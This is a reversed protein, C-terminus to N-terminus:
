AGAKSSSEQVSNIRQALWRLEYPTLERGVIARTGDSSELTLEWVRSDVDALARDHEMAFVGPREREIAFVRARLRGRGAARETGLAHAAELEFGDSSIALRTRRAAARPVAFAMVATVVIFAGVLLAASRTFFFAIAAVLLVLAPIGLAFSRHLPRRWSLALRGDALVQERISGQLSDSTPQLELEVIAAALARELESAPSAGFLRVSIRGRDAVLDVSLEPEGNLLTGTASRALAVQEPKIIAALTRAGFASEVLAIRERSLVFVRTTRSRYFVLVAVAAGAALFLHGVSSLIVARLVVIGGLLALAPVLMHADRGSAVPVVIERRDIEHRRYPDVM